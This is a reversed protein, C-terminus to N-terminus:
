VPMLSVNILDHVGALSGTGHVSVLSVVLEGDLGLNDRRFKLWIVHCWNTDSVSLQDISVDYTECVISWLVCIEQLVLTHKNTHKNMYRLLVVVASKTVCQLCYTHNIPFDIM